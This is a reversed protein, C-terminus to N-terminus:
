APATGAVGEGGAEVLRNKGAQKARYLAADAAAVLEVPTDADRPVCAVGLSVTITAELSDALRLPRASVAERLREGLRHAGSPPTHPLVIAFEEGGYRAILDIERVGARLIAAVGRLAADGALHGYRDNVVKFDDLDLLILGVSMGFRQAREVERALQDQFERRNALGTLPDSRAQKQILRHLRANEIAVAGQGALAAVVGPADADFVGGEPDVLTVLGVVAEDVILPACLVPVPETAVVPGLQALAESELAAPQPDSGLLDAAAEVRGMRLQEALEGSQEDAVLLRGGRARAAGMASALVIELLAPVDHSAALAAGFRETADQVRRREAELEGIRRELESAMDNFARGFRAFEDDGRVPVQVDFDGAAIANASAAFARLTATLSRVLLWALVGVILVALAIVLATRVRISSLADDIRSRATAAVVLRPAGAGTQLASSAARIASGGVTADGLGGAPLGAAAVRTGNPGWTAGGARLFVSDGQLAPTQLQRALAAYPLYVLITGSGPVRARYADGLTPPLPRGVLKGHVRAAIRFPPSELQRLLRALQKSDGKALAAEVDPRGAVMLATTRAGNALGRYTATAGNLTAVLAQDVHDKRNRGSVEQIIWGSLILPLITLIAFFVHLRYKFAL